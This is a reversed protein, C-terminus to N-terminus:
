HRRLIREKVGDLIGVLRMVNADVNAAARVIQTILGWAPKERDQGRSLRRRELFATPPELQRFGNGARFVRESRAHHDVADPLLMEARADDARGAVEALHAFPGRM